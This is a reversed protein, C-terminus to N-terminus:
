LASPPGTLTVSTDALKFFVRSLGLLIQGHRPRTFIRLSSIDGYRSPQDLNGLGAVGKSDKHVNLAAPLLVKNQSDM